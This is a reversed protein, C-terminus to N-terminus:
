EPVWVFSSMKGPEQFECKKCDFSGWSYDMVSGEIRTPTLVTIEFPDEFKCFNKKTGEGELVSFFGREKSYFCNGGSRIRGVYKDGTKTLEAVAFAGNRKQMATPVMECYVHNGEVRVVKITDSTVSKWRTPFQPAVEASLDGSAESLPKTLETIDGKVQANKSSGACGFSCVALIALASLVRRHRKM